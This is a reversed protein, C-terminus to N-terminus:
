HEATQTLTATTQEVQRGYYPRTRINSGDREDDGEPGSRRLREDIKLESKGLTGRARRAFCPRAAHNAGVSWQSIRGMSGGIRRTITSLTRRVAGAQWPRGM